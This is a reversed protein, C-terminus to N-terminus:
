GSELRGLEVVGAGRRSLSPAQLVRGHNNRMEFLKSKCSTGKQSFSQQAPGLRAFFFLLCHRRKKM